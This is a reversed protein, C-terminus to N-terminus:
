PLYRDCCIKQPLVKQHQNVFSNQDSSVTVSSSSKPSSHHVEGTELDLATRKLHNSIGEVSLIIIAIYIFYLHFPRLELTPFCIQLRSSQSSKRAMKTPFHNALVSGNLGLYDAFKKILGRVYIPEPLDKLDGKELSQLLGLSIFTDAAVMELSINQERRAQYLQNGINTLVNYQEQELDYSSTKNWRRNSLLLKIQRLSFIIPWYVRFKMETLKRRRNNKVLLNLHIKTVLRRWCTLSGKRPSIKSREIKSLLDSSPHVSLKKRSM